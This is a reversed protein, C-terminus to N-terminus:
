SSGSRKRKAKRGTGCKGNRLVPRSDYAAGNHGELKVTARYSGACIDRSNVLLGKDGGQMSLTFKSIPVDPATEFTTRIQGKISDIRGVVVAEIPQYDPGKLDVVLDPLKHSSSRLYVPGSVPYDLLPTTATAHGYVSGKPCADAAFQVRTCITRIHAQDLFESRPITVAAHGINAEGEKATITGRLRPHGGRKTGGFLRVDLQPEFKLKECGGVQFRKALRATAGSEGGVEASLRLQDCNTPNRTFNHRDIAIRIDRVDLLIGHLITPIPDSVATIQATEPDVHIANRVVVNGLDLPGAVAPAVVAISLPAGKYPGALYAKGTNAYFPDPGAGAGASATGIQSAAPCAPHATEAQGTQEATPISNLVADPCYPIGKLYATLGPPTTLKLSTFRDSGDERHLSMVFPSTKAATPNTTGGNLKPELAGTPCPGGGPGESVQFTSNDTVTEAATPHNLDAITWPVMEARIAYTGCRAPAILAARSGQAFHMRVASFPDEPSEDFSVTLQGTIPDPTVKGPMKIIVGDKKSEFVLYLGIASGEVAGQKAIYMAGSLTERIIPTDIEITGIKSSDPCSIPENTKLKVQEASCAGLGDAKAANVAMGRPFTVSVRKLSAQSIGEPEELGDTPMALSVDLGSPSDAAHTTPALDSDPEFKVKDCGTVSPNAFTKSKWNPDSLDPMGDPKLKGPHESSDISLRATPPAGACRTPNTILPLDNAGAENPLYCTVSGKGSALSAKKLGFGCLTPTADLLDLAPAPAAVVSIAYGDDARLHPAFVYVAGLSDTFAFQAPVGFEPEITYIPQSFTLESFRLFIGGVRSAEPCPSPVVIVDEVGSCRVPVALANGVFGRPTDVAVSKVHEVPALKANPNIRTLSRKRPVGIRATGTVPHGGAQTYSPEGAPDSSATPDASVLAEFSEVGFEKFPDFDFESTAEAPEPSGSGSV